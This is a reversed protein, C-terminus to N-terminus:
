VGRPELTIFLFYGLCQTPNMDHEFASTTKTPLSNPDESVMKLRPGRVLFIRPLIGCEPQGVKRLNVHYTDPVCGDFDFPYFLGPEGFQPAWISRSLNLICM